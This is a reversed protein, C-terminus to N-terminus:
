LAKVKTANFNAPWGASVLMTGFLQMLTQLTGNTVPTAASLPPATLAIAWADFVTKWAEPNTQLVVALTALDGGLHVASTAGVTVHGATVGLPAAARRLGPIAIAHLGHRALVAPASVSGTDYWGSFDEESFV